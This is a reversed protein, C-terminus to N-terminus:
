DDDEEFLFFGLDYEQKIATIEQGLAEHLVEMQKLRRALRPLNVIADNKGVPIQTLRGNDLVTLVRQPHGIALAPRRQEREMANFAEIYAEKFRAAKKGTFGMALFTFGDRTIQYETAQIPEGGSPNDRLYVTQAFNRERYRPSCDINQIKRLVDRHNRNFYRAVARSTTVAVGDILRVEPLTTTMAVELTYATNGGGSTGIELSASRVPNSSGSVISVPWGSPQGAWGALFPHANGVFFSADLSPRRTPAMTNNPTGIGALVATSVPASYGTMRASTLAGSMGLSM